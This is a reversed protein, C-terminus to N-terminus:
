LSGPGGIRLVVSNSVTNQVGAIQSVQVVGQSREFASADAHVHRQGNRIPLNSPTSAGASVSTLQEDSATLDASTSSTVVVSILNAQRNFEGAVQNVSIAGQSERLAGAEIRASADVATTVSVGALTQQGVHVSAEVQAGIALGMGNAQLNGRGAALNVGIRGHVGELAQAGILAQDQLPALDSTQAFAAPMLAAWGLVLVTRSFWKALPREPGIRTQSM